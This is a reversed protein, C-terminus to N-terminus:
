KKKENKRIIKKIKFNTSFNFLDKNIIADIYKSSGGSVFKWQPRKTLNFLGHNNFFHLFSTLPFKKVDEFNSSWISSILPYIHYNAIENSFNNENLFHDITINKDINNNNLKRCIKYFKRIELLLSFFKISLINKRQAFISNLGNGGYELFPFDCAVSFSMNSDEFKVNLFNFLSVLDPYNDTNFVIFGTDISLPNKLKDEFNITRTHGGLIKNKEFLHVDFNESLFFSASLGSIGSGIIAVKKRNM